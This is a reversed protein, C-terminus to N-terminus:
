GAQLASRMKRGAKRSPGNRLDELVEEAEAVLIQRPRTVDSFGLVTERAGPCVIIWSKKAAHDFAILRDIMFFHADPVNLDDTATEPLRELYHVFDYSLMGAAGGQFPPLEKVPEQKYANVLERLRQLPNRSSLTKRGQCDIEVSGDKVKVILYPEIGIFSYRAINEPGKM